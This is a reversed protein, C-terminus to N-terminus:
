VPELVNPGTIKYSYTGCGVDLSASATMGNQEGGQHGCPSLTIGNYADNCNTNCTGSAPAWDLEFNFSTYSGPNPPPTRKHRLRSSTKQNGSSDVNWSLKTQQAKGVADCFKGFVSGASGSFVNYPVGSLATVDCKPNAKPGPTATAGPAYQSSISAIIVAQAIDTGVKDGCGPFITDGPDQEDGPILDKDQGQKPGSLPAQHAKLDRPEETPKKRGPSPSGPYKGIQGEVYKALAFYAYSDANRQTFYGSYQPDPDVWNRLVKCNYVGYCGHWDTAEKIKYSVELDSVYPSKAKDGDGANMFYDLHTIEHFFCRARNNWLELNTKQTAPLKNGANVADKFTQLKFFDNCFTIRSYKSDDPDPDSFAELTKKGGGSPPSGGPCKGDDPKVDGCFNEPDSSDSGLKGDSCRIQSAQSDRISYPLSELV